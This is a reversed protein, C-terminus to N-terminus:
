IGLAQKKVPTSLAKHCIPCRVPSAAFAQTNLLKTLRLAFAGSHEAFCLHFVM